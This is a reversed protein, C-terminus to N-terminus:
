ACGSMWASIWRRRSMVWGVDVGGIGVRWRAESGESRVLSSAAWLRILLSVSLFWRRRRCSV